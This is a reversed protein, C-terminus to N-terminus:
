HIFLNLIQNYLTETYKAMKMNSKHTCLYVESLPSHSMFQSLMYIFPLQSLMTRVCDLWHAPCRFFLPQMGPPAFLSEEFCVSWSYPWSWRGIGHTCPAIKGPGSASWEYRDLAPTLILSVTGGHGRYAKM